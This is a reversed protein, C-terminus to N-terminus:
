SLHLVMNYIHFKYHILNHWETASGPIIVNNWTIYIILRVSKNRTVVFFIWMYQFANINKADNVWACKICSQASFSFIKTMNSNYDHLQPTSSHYWFPTSRCPEVYKTRKNCSSFCVNKIRKWCSHKETKVSLCLWKDWISKWLKADDIQKRPGKRNRVSTEGSWSQKEPAWPACYMFCPQETDWRSILRNENNGAQHM